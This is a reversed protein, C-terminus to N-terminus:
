DEKQPKKYNRVANALGIAVPDGAQAGQAIAPLAENIKILSPRVHSMVTDTLAHFAAGKPTAGRARDLSSGAWLEADRRKALDSFDQSLASEQKATKFARGLEPDVSSVADESARKVAGSAQRFFKVGPDHDAVDANVYKGRSLYGEDQLVQKADEYATVPQRSIIPTEGNNAQPRTTADEPGLTKGLLRAREVDRSTPGVTRSRRVEPDRIIGQDNSNRVREHSAVADEAEQAAEGAAQRTQAIRTGPTQGDDLAELPDATRQAGLAARDARESARM